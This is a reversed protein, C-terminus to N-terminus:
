PKYIKGKKVLAAPYSHELVESFLEQGSLWGQVIKTHDESIQKLLERPLMRHGNKGGKKGGLTSFNRGNHLVALCERHEAM